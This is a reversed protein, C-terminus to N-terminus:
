GIRTTILLEKRELLAPALQRFRAIHETGLHADLAERSEWIEHFVFMRPHSVDRHLEYRIMGADHATPAVLSSLLEALEEERGAKAVNISVVSIGSM